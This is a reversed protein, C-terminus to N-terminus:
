VAGGIRKWDSEAKRWYEKILRCAVRYRGGRRADVISAVETVVM